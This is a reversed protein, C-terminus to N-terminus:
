KQHRLQSKFEFLQAANGLDYYTETVAEWLEKAFPLFLYTMGIDVDM